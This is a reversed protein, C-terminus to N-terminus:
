FRFSASVGASDTTVMPVLTLKKEVGSGELDRRFVEPRNVFVLVLGAIAATGGVIYSTVAIQQLREASVRQSTLNPFDNDRCGGGPQTACTEGFSNDYDQFSSNSQAHLAGGAALVFAGVGVVAWPKWATWRRRSVTM